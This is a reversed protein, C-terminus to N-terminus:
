DSVIMGFVIADSIGSVPGVVLSGVDTGVVYEIILVLCLGTGASM